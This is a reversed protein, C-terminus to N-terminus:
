SSFCFNLTAFSCLLLFSFFVFSFRTFYTFVGSELTGWWWGLNKWFSTPSREVMQNGVQVSSSKLTNERCSLLPNGEITPSCFCSTGFLSQICFVIGPFENTFFVNHIIGLERRSKRVKEESLLRHKQGIVCNQISLSDVRGAQSLLSMSYEKGM